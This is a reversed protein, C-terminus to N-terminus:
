DPAGKPRERRQAREIEREVDIWHLPRPSEDSDEDARIMILYTAPLLVGFTILKALYGALQQDTLPSFGLVDHQAHLSDYLPQRAFIWIFSLFTPAVAQGVLYGAKVMPKLSHAGPVREIVPLWLIIGADFVLGLILARAALNRGAWEISFPLATLALLATTTGLAMFPRTLHRALFDIPRPRTLRAAVTPPTGFLLLPAVALVLTLRQLVTMLLSVSRALDALPWSLAVVLLVIGTLFSGRQRGTARFGEKWTAELYWALLALGLVLAGIHVSPHSWSFTM